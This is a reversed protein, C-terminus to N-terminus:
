GVGRPDGGSLFYNSKIIKSEAEVIPTDQDGRSLWFEFKKPGQWKQDSKFWDESLNSQFFGQKQRTIGGGGNTKKQGFFLPLCTSHLLPVFFTTNEQEKLESLFSWSHEQTYVAQRTPCLGIEAHRLPECPDNNAKHCSSPGSPTIKLWFCNWEAKEQPVSCSFMIKLYSAPMGSVTNDISFHLKHTLTQGVENHNNWWKELTFPHSHVFTVWFLHSNSCSNSRMLSTQSLDYFSQDPPNTVFRPRAPKTHQPSFFVQLNEQSCASNKDAHQVPSGSHVRTLNWSHWAAWSKLIIFIYKEGRARVNEQMTCLSSPSVPRFIKLNPLPLKSNLELQNM